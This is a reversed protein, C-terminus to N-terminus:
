VNFFPRFNKLAFIERKVTNQKGHVSSPKKNVIEQAAFSRKKHTKDAPVVLGDLQLYPVCSPLFPVLGNGRGVVMSGHAEDDHKIEGILLREM